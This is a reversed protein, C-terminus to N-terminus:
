GPSGVAKPRRRLAAGALGFGGVMMAWTAPEPVVSVISPTVAINDFEFSDGSSGFTVSSVVKDFAYTMYRGVAQNGHFAGGALQVGDLSESTGDLYNFVISNYSDPSGMFVSLSSIGPTDLTMSGGDRVAAYFGSAGPPPAAQSTTGAAVSRIGSGLSFAVSYDANQVDDFNWVLTQGVLPGAEVSSFLVSVAGEAAGAAGFAMATALAAAGKLHKM